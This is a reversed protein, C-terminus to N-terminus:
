PTHDPAKSKVNIETIRKYKESVDTSNPNQLCFTMLDILEEELSLYLAALPTKNNM